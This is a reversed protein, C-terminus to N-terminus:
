SCLRMVIAGEDPNQYYGKRFGIERFGISKYLRVAVGNSERVELFWIGQTQEVLTKVLKSGIGRGRLPAEVFVQLIEHEQGAVLTRGAVFGAVLGDVVAVLVDQSAWQADVADAAVAPRIEIV